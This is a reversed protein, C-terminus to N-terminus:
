DFTPNCRDFEMIWVTDTDIVKQKLHRLEMWLPSAVLPISMYICLGRLVCVVNLIVIKSRRAINLFACQMHMQFLSKKLWSAQMNPLMPWSFYDFLIPVQVDLINNPVVRWANCLVSKNRKMESGHKHWILPLFPTCPVLPQPWVLGESAM